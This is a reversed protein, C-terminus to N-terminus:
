EKFYKKIKSILKGLFYKIRIFIGDKVINSEVQIQTEGISIQRYTIGYKRTGLSPSNNSQYM